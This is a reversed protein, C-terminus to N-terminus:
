QFSLGIRRIDRGLPSDSFYSIDRTSDDGNINPATDREFQTQHHAPRRAHNAEAPENFYADIHQQVYDALASDDILHVQELRRAENCNQSGHIVLDFRDNRLMAIKAHCATLRIADIGFSHCAAHYYARQRSPYSSDLLLRISIIQGEQMLRHLYATENSGLTWTALTLRAPGIQALCHTIIDILSFQGASITFIDVGSEIDGIAQAASVATLARRNTRGTLTDRTRKHAVVIAPAASPAAPDTKSHNQEKSWTDGSHAKEGAARAGSRVKTSRESVLWETRTSQSRDVPDFGPSVEMSGGFDALPEAALTQRIAAWDTKHKM